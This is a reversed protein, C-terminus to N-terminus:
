TDEFNRKRAIRMWYKIKAFAKEILNLGPASRCRVWAGISLDPIDLCEYRLSLPKAAFSCSIFAPGRTLIAMRPSQM